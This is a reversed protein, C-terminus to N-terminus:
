DNDEVGALAEAADLNFWAGCSTWAGPISVMTAGRMRRQAVPHRVPTWIDSALDSTEFFGAAIIDPTEYALRELPLSRWGPERQFNEFGVHNILDGILTNRGATAGKSSLYLVTLQDDRISLRDIRAQMEAIVAKGKQKADLGTSTELVIRKVGALDNAFGIQLVPVGARELFGTINQGGGYTRVVLDPRLVLIDEARAYVKRLGRAENRLYSYEAEADRSLALINERAAFKLVYQDACFDLSVIRRPGEPPAPHAPPDSNDVGCAAGLM